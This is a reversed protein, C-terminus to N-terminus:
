THVPKFQYDWIIKGINLTKNEAGKRDADLDSVIWQIYAYLSRGYQYNLHSEWYLSAKKAFFNIEYEDFCLQEIKYDKRHIVVENDEGEENRNKIYIKGDKKNRMAM